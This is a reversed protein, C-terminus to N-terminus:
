SGGKGTKMRDAWSRLTSEALHSYREAMRVSQWGGLEKLVLTSAGEQALWSAWTHRLTHWTIGALGARKLAGRFAKTNFTGRIAKKGYTFVQDVNEVRPVQRLLEVAEPPLPVSIPRRGKASERPVWAHARELDIRGWVLDRVNAMRLGTLVSFIVPARQHAPLQTLLRAFQERTIFTADRERLQSLPVRPAHKLMGRSVALHLVASLVSLYRNATAPAFDRLLAMRAAQIVELTIASLPLRHLPGNRKPDAFWGLIWNNRYQTSQALHSREAKYLTVAEDFTHSRQGLEIERWTRRRLRDEYEEADAKVDTGTSQRIERNRLRFRCWYRTTGRPKYLSM